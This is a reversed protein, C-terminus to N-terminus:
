PLQETKSELEAPCPPLPANRPLPSEDPVAPRKGDLIEQVRAFHEVFKQPSKQPRRSAKCGDVWAVFAGLAESFYEEPAKGKAPAANKALLWADIIGAGPQLGVADIWRQEPGIVRACAPPPEETRQTQVQSQSQTSPREAVGTAFTQRDSAKKNGGKRGNQSNQEAIAEAKQRERDLRKNYLRAPQDSMPSFYLGVMESLHQEFHDLTVGLRRALRRPDAPIYGHTWQHCLLRVYAGQEELSLIDTDLLWDAVDLPFWPREIM